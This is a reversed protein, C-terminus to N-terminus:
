YLWHTFLQIRERPFGSPHRFSSLSGECVGVKLNIRITVRQVSSVCSDGCVPM